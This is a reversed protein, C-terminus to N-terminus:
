GHPGPWKVEGNVPLVKKIKYRLTDRTVSLLRSARTQNGRTLVLAQQILDREVQYLDIGHTPLTFSDRSSSSPMRTFESIRLPLLDVDISGEDQLIMAREIANKLERVNGPWGYNHLVRNARATLGRISKRFRVNYDDIFHEVLPDIDEKRERLPALVIPIVSLRYFLDERFHNEAAM